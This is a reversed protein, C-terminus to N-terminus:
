EFFVPQIREFHNSLLEPARSLEQSLKRQLLLALVSRHWDLYLCWSGKLLLSRIEMLAKIFMQSQHLQVFGSLFKALRFRM